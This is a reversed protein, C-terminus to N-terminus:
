IVEVSGFVASANVVVTPANELTVKDSCTSSGFIQNGVLKYNANAGTKIIVSGFVADAEITCDANIVAESLDVTITSFVANFECGMFNEGAFSLDQNAFVSEYEKGTAHIKGSKSDSFVIEGDENVTVSTNHSKRKFASGILALAATFLVVIGAVLLWSTDAIRASIEPYASLWSEANARVLMIGGFLILGISPLKSGRQVLGCLGPVILFLTWLGNVERILNNGTIVGYVILACAGLLVLALLLKIVQKFGKRM